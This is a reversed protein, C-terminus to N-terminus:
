GVAWGFSRAQRDDPSVALDLRPRADGCGAAPRLLPPVVAPRAGGGGGGSRFTRAMAASSRDQVDDFASLRASGDGLWPDAFAFGRVGVLRGRSSGTWFDELRGM